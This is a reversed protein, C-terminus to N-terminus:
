ARYPVASVVEVKNTKGNPGTFEVVSGSEADLLAAGLPAQPSFVTVGDVYEENERAGLLFTEAEDDGDGEFKYTVVKGAAVVGDDEPVTTDAHLLVHELQRIQGELKGQEERAAHYGGNESLDGEDRAASIRSVIDQRRPGKMEELEATLQDFAKQTLWIPGQQETPQTM